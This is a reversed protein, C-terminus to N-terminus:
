EKHINKKKLIEQVTGSAKEHGLSDSIMFSSREGGGNKKQYEKLIFIFDGSLVQHM